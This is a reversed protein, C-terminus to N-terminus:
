YRWDVLNNFKWEKGVYLKQNKLLKKNLAEFRKSIFDGKQNGLIRNITDGVMNFHFELPRPTEEM